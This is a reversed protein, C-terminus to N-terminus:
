ELGQIICADRFPINSLNGSITFIPQWKAEELAALMQTKGPTIGVIAISAAENVYDFAAYYIRVGLQPETDILLREDPYDDIWFKGTPIDAIVKAFRDFLSPAPPDGGSLPQKRRHSRM